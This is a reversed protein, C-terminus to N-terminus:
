RVSVSKLRGRKIKLDLGALAQYIMRLNQNLREVDVGQKKLGEQVEKLAEAYNNKHAKNLANWNIRQFLLADEYIYPLRGQLLLVAIIPYGAYGQWYTANDNASYLDGKWEVLYTKRGDSSQVEARGEGLAVRQDAIASYAEPIKELPPMKM